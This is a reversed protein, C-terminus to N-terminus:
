SAGKRIFSGREDFVDPQTYEARPVISVPVSSKVLLPVDAQEPPLAMGPPMGHFMRRDDLLSEGHDSLYIFVYPAGSGDLTGIIGGLVHDLFLISNDYSNYLEELTCRNAVDADNCMPQFEQFEPPYRNKYVPGHSGGGLHLVIFRNGAV